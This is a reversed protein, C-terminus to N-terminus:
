VHFPLESLGVSWVVVSILLGTGKVENELIAMVIIVTFNCYVMLPHDLPDFGAM